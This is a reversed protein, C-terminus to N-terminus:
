GARVLHEGTFDRGPQDVVRRRQLGEALQLDLTQATGDSRELKMLKVRRRRCELLAEVGREDPALALEGRETTRELTRDVAPVSSDREDPPARHRCTEVRPQAPGSSSPRSSTTPDTGRM